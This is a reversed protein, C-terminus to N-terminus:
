KRRRSKKEYGDSERTRSSVGCVVQLLYARYPQDRCRDNAPCAEDQWRTQSIASSRRWVPCLVAPGRVVVGTSCPKLWKAEAEDEHTKTQLAARIRRIFLGLPNDKGKRTKFLFIKNQDMQSLISLTNQDMQSLTSLNNILLLLSGAWGPLWAALCGPLWAALCGALGCGPLM